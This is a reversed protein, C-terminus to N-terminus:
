RNPSSARKEPTDTVDCNDCEKNLTCDSCKKRRKKNKIIQLLFTVAFALIIGVFIWQTVYDTITWALIM